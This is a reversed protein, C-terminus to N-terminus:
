DNNDERLYRRAPVPDPECACYIRPLRYHDYLDILYAPPRGYKFVRLALYALVVVLWPLVVEAPIGFVTRQLLNSGFETIAWLFGLLIVDEVEFVFWRMTARLNRQVRIKQLAM